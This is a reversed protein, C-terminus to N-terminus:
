QQAAIGRANPEDAVKKVQAITLEVRNDGIQEGISTEGLVFVDGDKANLLEELLNDPNFTKLPMNFLKNNM